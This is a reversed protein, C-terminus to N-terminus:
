NMKISYDNELLSKSFNGEAIKKLVGKRTYKERMGAKNLMNMVKKDVEQCKEQAKEKNTACKSDLVHAQTTNCTLPSSCIDIKSSTSLCNVLTEIKAKEQALWPHYLAEEASIRKEPDIELLKQLFDRLLGSKTPLTQSDVQFPNTLIAQKITKPDRALYPAKGTLLVYLTIGCSWIDVKENYDGKLIEPALYYPTGFIGTLKGNPQYHCANGFDGIKIKMGESDTIFINEPKIDRHIIHQKHFNDVALMIQFMIEAAKEEDITLKKKIHHFLSGAECFETAIYLNLDDEFYDCLKLVNQNSIQELYVAEKLIGDSYYQADVLSSKKLIKLARYEQSPIHKCMMVESFAGRGLFKVSIYDNSTSFSKIQIRNNLNEQNNDEKQVNCAPNRKSKPLKIAACGM